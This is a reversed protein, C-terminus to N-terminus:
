LQEEGLKTIKMYPFVIFIALVIISLLTVASGVSYAFSVFTTTYVNLPFLNGAVPPVQGFFVFPTVFDNFTWIFLLLSLVGLTGAVHPLMVHRTQAWRGGGDVNIAEYLETAINSTAALMMLFVFPWTRWVATIVLSVFAHGGQLYLIDGTLGLNHHLLTNVAGNGQFAFDWALAGAYVPVAYPIIFFVQFFRSRRVSRVFVVAVTGILLSAAVVCTVYALSILLSRLIPGGVASSGLILKFNDFGVFPASFWRRITFQDVQTFSTFIGGAIPLVYVLVECIVAPIMLIWLVRRRYAPSLSQVHSKAVSRQRENRRARQSEAPRQRTTAPMATAEKVNVTV